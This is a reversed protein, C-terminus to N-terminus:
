PCVLSDITQGEDNMVYMTCHTAVFAQGGDCRWLVIAEDGVQPGLGLVAYQKECWSEEMVQVTYGILDAELLFEYRSAVSGSDQPDLVLKVFM